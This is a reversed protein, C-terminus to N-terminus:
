ARKKIPTANEPLKAEEAALKAELRRQLNLLEGSNLSDLEDINTSSTVDQKSTEVYLSHFVGLLKHAANVAAFQKAEKADEINQLLGDTLREMTIARKEAIQAQLEAVRLRVDDFTLLKSAAQRTPRKYGAKRYADIISTPDCVYAQCFAERRPNRLIPM